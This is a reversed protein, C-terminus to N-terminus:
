RKVDVRAAGNKGRVIRVARAPMWGTGTGAVTASVRVPNKRRATKKSAPNARKKTANIVYGSGSRHASTIRYGKAILAAAKAKLGALTKVRAKM